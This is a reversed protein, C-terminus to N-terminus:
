QQTISHAKLKMKPSSIQSLTSVSAISAAHTSVITSRTIERSNMLRPRSFPSYAYPVTITPEGFPM